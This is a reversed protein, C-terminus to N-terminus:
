HWNHEAKPPELFNLDQYLDDRETFGLPHRQFWFFDHWHLSRFFTDFWIFNVLPKQCMWTNESSVYWLSKLPTWREELLNQPPSSFRKSCGEVRRVGDASGLYQFPKGQLEGPTQRLDARAVTLRQITESMTFGTERFWTPSQICTLHWKCLRIFTSLWLYDFEFLGHWPKQYNKEWAFTSCGDGSDCVTAGWYPMSAQMRCPHTCTSQSRVAIDSQWFACGKVWM